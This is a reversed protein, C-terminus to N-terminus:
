QEKELAAKCKVCMTTDPLIKLREAEIPQGCRECLGYKGRNLAALAREVSQLKRELNKMISLNMMRESADPDVGGEAVRLEELYIRIRDMEKLIRQREKKLEQQREAKIQTLQEAV